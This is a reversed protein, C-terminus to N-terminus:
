KHAEWKECTKRWPCKKYISQRHVMADYLCIDERKDSVTYYRCVKCSKMLFLKAEKPSDIVIHPLDSIKRTM